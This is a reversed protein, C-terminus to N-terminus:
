SAAARDFPIVRAPPPASARTVVPRGATTHFKAELVWGSSRKGCHVCRLFMAGQECAMGYDHRGSLYCSIFNWMAFDELGRNTVGGIAFATGYNLLTENM